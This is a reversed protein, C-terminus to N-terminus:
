VSNQPEEAGRRRSNTNFLCVLHVRACISPHIMEDETATVDNLVNQDLKAIARAVAIVQMQYSGGSGEGKIHMLLMKRREELGKLLLPGRKDLPINMDDLLEKFRDNVEKESLRSIDALLQQFDEPQNDSSIPRGSANNNNNSSKSHKVKPRSFFTDLLGPQRVKEHRSM